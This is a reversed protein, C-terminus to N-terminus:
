LLFLAFWWHKMERRNSDSTSPLFKNESFFLTNSTLMPSFSYTCQTTTSDGLFVLHEKTRGSRSFFPIELRVQDEAPPSQRLTQEKWMYRDLQDYIQAFYRQVIEQVAECPLYMLELPNLRIWNDIVLLLLSLTRTNFEEDDHGLSSLDENPSRHILLLHKLQRHIEIVSQRLQDNEIMLLRHKQDYDHCIKKLLIRFFSDEM